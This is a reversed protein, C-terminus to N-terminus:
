SVLDSFSEGITRVAIGKKYKPKEYHVPKGEALDIWWKVDQFGFFHRIYVTSSFRPNIEFPVYGDETRRFQINLSGKLNAATAIGSAIDEVKPDIVLQAVKTLSGYGLCRKFAISYVNEGTSFVGVTYEENPSGVMEQVIMNSANGKFFNLERKSNVIILGKGGCSKRPKLVLPYGLENHYDKLLCTKPYPFGNKRLFVTTEYKDLFNRLVNASNIFLFIDKDNFYRRHLNFFEIEIESSPIIYDIKRKKVLAKLFSFYKRSELAKPAEFFEKVSSKGAAYSDIDCGIIILRYGTDKLCKIISQGIDGGIGTVLVVKQTTKM